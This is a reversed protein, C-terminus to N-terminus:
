EFSITIGNNALLPCMLTDTKVETRELSFALMQRVLNTVSIQTLASLQELREYTEANIRLNTSCKNVPKNKVFILSDM